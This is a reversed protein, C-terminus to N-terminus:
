RYLEPHDKPDPRPGVPRRRFANVFSISPNGRDAMQGIVWDATQGIVWDATQGIVWHGNSGDNPFPGCAELLDESLLKYVLNMRFHGAVRFDEEPTNTKEHYGQVQKEWVENIERDFEAVFANIEEPSLASTRVIASNADYRSWDHTLIELDYQDVEERVTTGPFPALFHYGYLSGLSGAFENRRKAPNGDIEGPLGVIFSTHAIM